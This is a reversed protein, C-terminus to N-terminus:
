LVHGYIKNYSEFAETNTLGAIYFGVELLFADFLLAINPDGGPGQTHSNKIIGFYDKVIGMNLVHKLTNKGNNISVHWNQNKIADFTKDTAQRVAASRGAYANRFAATNIIRRLHNEIFSDPLLSVDNLYAKYLQRIIYKARSDSERVEESQALLDSILNELEKNVGTIAASFDVVKADYIPHYIGNIRTQTPPNLLINRSTNHAADETMVTFISWEVRAFPDALAYSPCRVGTLHPDLIKLIYDLYRALSTADGLDAARQAIEDAMAVIQGELTLASPTAKVAAHFDMKNKSFIAKEMHRYASNAFPNYPDSIYRTTDGKYCIKTHSLAGDIIRWDRVGLDILIRMANVNHKFRMTPNGKPMVLSPSGSQCNLGGLTDKGSVVADITREGVHGFPTHGIDHAYAIADVLEPDVPDLLVAGPTQTDKYYQIKENLLRAIKHAITKVELTHTLRTRVRLKQSPFFLQTKDQLSRFQSSYIIREAFSPNLKDQLMYM